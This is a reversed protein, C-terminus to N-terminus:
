RQRRGSAPAASPLSEVEPVRREGDIDGPRAVSGAMVKEDDGASGCSSTSACSIKPCDIDFSDRDLDGLQGIGDSLQGAAARGRQELAQAVLEADVVEVDAGIRVALRIDADAAIEVLAGIEFQLLVALSPALAIM